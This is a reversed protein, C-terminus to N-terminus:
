NPLIRNPFPKERFLPSEEEIDKMMKDWADTLSYQSRAESGENGLM